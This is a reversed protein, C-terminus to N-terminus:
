CFKCVLVKSFRKFNRNWNFRVQHEGSSSNWLRMVGKRRAEGLSVIYRGDPTYCLTKVGNHGHAIATSYTAAVHPDNDCRPKKAAHIEYRRPQQAYGQHDFSLLCATAGSKRVDWLRIAGDRGGSCLEYPHVPSWKVVRVSDRHGILSHTSTGSVIDCLRVENTDSAVAVIETNPGPARSISSCYVPKPLKFVVAAQLVETDWVKVVSDHSCSTFIGNDSPFWEIDTVGAEHGVSPDLSSGKPARPIMALPERASSTAHHTSTDYLAISGKCSGTLLYREDLVDLDLSWSPSTQRPEVFSQVTDMRIECLQKYWYERRFCEQDHVIGLSREAIYDFANLM